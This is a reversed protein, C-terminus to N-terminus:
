SQPVGVLLTIRISFLNEPLSDGKGDLILDRVFSRVRFALKKASAPRVFGLAELHRLAPEGSWAVNEVKLFQKLGKPFTAVGYIRVRHMLAPLVKAELALVTEADGRVKAARLEDVAQELEQGLKARAIEREKAAAEEAGPPINFRFEVVGSLKSPSARVRGITRAAIIPQNWPSAEARFWV